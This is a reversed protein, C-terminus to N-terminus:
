MMAASLPTKGGNSSAISGRSQFLQASLSRLNKKGSRRAHDYRRDVVAHDDIAITEGAVVLNIGANKKIHRDALHMQVQRARSLELAAAPLLAVILHCLCRLDNLKPAGTSPHPRNHALAHRYHNLKAVPRESRIPLM